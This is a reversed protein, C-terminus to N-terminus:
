RSAGRLARGGAQPPASEGSSARAAGPPAVGRAPRRGRSRDPTPPISLEVRVLAVFILAAGAFLGVVAALRVLTPPPLQLVWRVALVFVVWALGALPAIVAARVLLGTGDEGQASEHKEAARIYTTM